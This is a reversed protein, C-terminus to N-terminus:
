GPLIGRARAAAERGTKAAHDPKCRSAFNSEDDAGGAWLPVEHDVEDAQRVEGRAKCDICLPNAM